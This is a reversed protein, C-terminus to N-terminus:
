KSTDLAARATHYVAEPRGAVNKCYNLAERLREIEDLLLATQASGSQRLVIEALKLREIEAAQSEIFNAADTFDKLLAIETHMSRLHKVIQEATQTTM